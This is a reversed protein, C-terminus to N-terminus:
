GNFEEFMALKKECKETEDIVNKLQAKKVTELEELTKKANELVKGDEKVYREHDATLDELDFKRLENKVRECEESKGKGGIELKLVEIQLACKSVRNSSRKIANEIVSDKNEEIEKLEKELAKRMEGNHRIREKMDAIQEDEKLLGLLYNIAIDVRGCPEGNIRIKRLKLVDANKIEVKM